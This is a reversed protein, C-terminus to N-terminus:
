NCKQATKTLTIQARNSEEICLIIRKHQGPSFNEQSKPKYTNRNNNKIVM